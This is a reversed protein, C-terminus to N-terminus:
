CSQHPLYIFPHKKNPYFIIIGFGAEFANLVADASQSEDPRPEVPPADPRPPRNGSNSNGASSSGLVAALSPQFLPSDSQCMHHLIQWVVREVLWDKHEQTLCLGTYPVRKQCSVLALAGDAAGADIIAILNYTGVIEQWLVMPKAHWFVPEVSQKTKGSLPVGRHSDAPDTGHTRGGVAVRYKGFLSM